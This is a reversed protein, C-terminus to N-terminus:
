SYDQLAIPRTVTPGRMRGIDSHRKRWLLPSTCRPVVTVGLAHCNQLHKCGSEINHPPAAPTLRSATLPKVRWAVSKETGHLGQDAFVSLNGAGALLIEPGPVRSSFPLPPSLPSKFALTPSSDTCDMPSARQVECILAVRM